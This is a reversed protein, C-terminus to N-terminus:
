KREQRAKILHEVMDRAATLGEDKGQQKAEAIAWDTVIDTIVGSVSKGQVRAETKLLETIKWPLKVKLEEM